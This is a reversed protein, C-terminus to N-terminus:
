YVKADDPIIVKRIYKMTGVYENYHIWKHADNIDIFYIGGKTCSDYTNFKNKDVNLGDVFQFGRHRESPNTLKVFAWNGFLNNFSAGTFEEGIYATKDEIM